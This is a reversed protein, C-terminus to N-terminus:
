KIILNMTNKENVLTVTKTPIDTFYLKQETESMSALIANAFKASIYSHTSAGSHIGPLLPTTAYLLTASPSYHEEDSVLTPNTPVIDNHLRSSSSTTTAIMSLVPVPTATHPIYIPGFIDYLPDELFETIHVDYIHKSDWLSDSSHLYQFPFLIKTVM